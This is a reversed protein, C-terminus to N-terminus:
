ELEGEKQSEDEDDDRHGQIGVSLRGFAEGDMNELMRRVYSDNATLRFGARKLILVVAKVLEESAKNM